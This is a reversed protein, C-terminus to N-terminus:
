VKNLKNYERALGRESSGAFAKRQNRPENSPRSLVYLSGLLYCKSDMQYKNKCVYNNGFKYILYKCTATYTTGYLNPM